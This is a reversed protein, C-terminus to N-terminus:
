YIVTQRDSTGPKLTKGMTEISETGRGPVPGINIFMVRDTDFDILNALTTVLLGYESPTLDCRFVSYQVPDGTACMAKYVKRWRAPETIDYSVIYRSKAMCLIETEIM